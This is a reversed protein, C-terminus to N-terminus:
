QTRAGRGFRPRDNKAIDTEEAVPDDEGGLLRAKISAKQRIAGGKRAVIKRAFKVLEPHTAAAPFKNCTYEIDDKDDWADCKGLSCDNCNPDRKPHRKVSGRGIYVVDPEGSDSEVAMIEYLEQNDNATSEKPVNAFCPAHYIRVGGSSSIRQVVENKPREGRWERDCINFADCGMNTPSHQSCTGINRLPCGLDEVEKRSGVPRVIQPAEKENTVLAV